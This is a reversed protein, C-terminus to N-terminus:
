GALIKRAKKSAYFPTLQARIRAELLGSDEAQQAIAPAYAQIQSIIEDKGIGISDLLPLIAQDGYTELWLGAIASCIKDASKSKRIDEWIREAIGALEDITEDNLTTSLSSLKKTRLQKWISNAVSKINDEDLKSELFEQSLEISREINAQIYPKTSSEITEDLKPLSKSIGWKGAKVLASVGRMKVLFNEDLLYGKIGNYLVDSILESYVTSEMARAVIIKRLVDTEVLKNVLLKYSRKSLLDKIATNHVVDLEDMGLLITKVMDLLAPRIPADFLVTRATDTLLERTVIQNGTVEKCQEFIADVTDAITNDLNEGRYADLAFQVHAELLDNATDNM